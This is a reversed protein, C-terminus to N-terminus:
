FRDIRKQKFWEQLQQSCRREKIGAIVKLKHNSCDSDPLNIVTRIAGTKPESAGYVLLGIRSHIIAGACMACPELTVYLTCDQLCWNQKVQSAQRIALMEAHATADQEKEKSNTAKAILNGSKDIIIAAIPIEGRNGAIQALELAYEMWHCHILYSEYTLQSFARDSKARVRHFNQTM